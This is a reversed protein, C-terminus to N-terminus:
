ECYTCHKGLKRLEMWPKMMTASKFIQPISLASQAKASTLGEECLLRGGKVVIVHYV